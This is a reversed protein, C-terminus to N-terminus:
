SLRQDLQRSPGDIPSPGVAPLGPEHDQVLVQTHDRRASRGFQALLAEVVDAEPDVVDRRVEVPHLAEAATHDGRGHLGPGSGLGLWLVAPDPRHVQVLRVPVDDLEIPPDAAPSIFGEERDLVVRVGLLDRYFPLSTELDRVEMAIHSITRMGTM